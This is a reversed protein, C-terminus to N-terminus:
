SAVDVPTRIPQLLAEVDARKLVIRKTGIRYAKLEGRAVRRRTSQETERLWDAAEHLTMYETDDPPQEGVAARPAGACETLALIAHCVAVLAATTATADGWDEAHEALIKRAEDAHHTTSM